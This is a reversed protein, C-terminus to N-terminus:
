QKPTIMLVKKPSNEYDKFVVYMHTGDWDNPITIGMSDGTQELKITDTIEQAQENYVEVSYESSMMPSILYFDRNNAQISKMVIDNGWNDKIFKIEFSDTIEDCNIVQFGNLKVTFEQKAEQKIDEQTFEMLMNFNQYKSLIGYEGTSEDYGILGDNGKECFPDAAVQEYLAKPLVLVYGIRKENSPDVTVRVKNKGNNTTHIWDVLEEDPNEPDPISTKFITIGDQECKEVFVSVFDDNLVDVTYEVFNNYTLNVSTGEAGTSSTQTFTDGKLSVVWNFANPGSLKMDKPDMGKYNVTYTYVQKGEEDQFNINGVQVYKSFDPRNEVVKIGFEVEQNASGVISGGEISLWEPRNTAAFRFNAVAKYTIFDNYGAEIGEEASVEVWEDGAGKKYLKFTRGAANRTVEALVAEQGNMSITISAVTTNDYDQGEDSIGITVTQKGAKGSISYEKVGETAKAAPTGETIFYCWTSSSTLTWDAVADFTLSKTESAAGGITQKEPFTVTAVNDDEDDCATVAFAMLLSIFFWGLTFKNKKM